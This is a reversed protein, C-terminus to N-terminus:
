WRRKLVLDQRRRVSWVWMSAGAVGVVVAGDVVVDVWAPARVALEGLWIVLLRMM